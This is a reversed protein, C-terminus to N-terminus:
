SDSKEHKNSIHNIVRFYKRLKHFQKTNGFYFKFSSSSAFLRKVFSVIEPMASGEIGAQKNQM